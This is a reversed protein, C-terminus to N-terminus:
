GSQLSWYSLLRAGRSVRTFRVIDKIDLYRFIIDIIESGIEFGSLILSPPRFGIRSRQGLTWKAVANEALRLLLERADPHMVSEFMAVLRILRKDRESPDMTNCLNIITKLNPINPEVGLMRGRETSGRKALEVM